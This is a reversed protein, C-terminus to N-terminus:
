DRYRAPRGAHRRPRPTRAATPAGAIAADLNAFGASTASEDLVRHGDPAVTLNLSIDVDREMNRIPDGDPRPETNEGDTDPLWSKLVNEFEYPKVKDIHVRFPRARRSRQLVVNVPGVVKIILFPGSFKRRWKDQRGVLKRPNFYYM